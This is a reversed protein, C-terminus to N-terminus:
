PQQHHHDSRARMQAQGNMDDDTGHEYQYGESSEPPSCCLTYTYECLGSRKLLSRTHNQEFGGKLFQLVIARAREL